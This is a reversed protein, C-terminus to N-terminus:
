RWAAAWPRPSRTCRRRATTTRSGSAPGIPMTASHTPPPRPNPRTESRAPGAIPGSTSPCSPRRRSRALGCVTSRGRAEPDGTPILRLWGEAEFRRGLREALRARERLEPVSSLGRDAILLRRYREKDRLAEEQRRRIAAARDAQGARIALEALRDLARTDGPEIAVVHELADRERRPIAAIRPSGPASRGPSGRSSATPRSRPWRGGRRTRVAPPWRGDCAPAPSSGRSRLMTSTDSISVIWGVVQRKMSGTSPPSTTRALWVYPDDTATREAQDLVPGVEEGAVIVSDLRWHERLAAIRDIPTGAQEIERLLRRIEDLRGEWLLLEALAWRAPMAVSGGGRIVARFAREADGLRGLSHVLLRGEALRAPGALVSDTKLSRWATVAAEPRGLKAECEGLLYAVRDDRPWWIALRELRDRAAAYDGEAMRQQAWELGTRVQRGGLLLWAAWVLAAAVLGVAIGAAWRSRAMTVM